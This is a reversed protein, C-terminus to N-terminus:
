RLIIQMKISLMKSGVKKMPKLAFGTDFLKYMVNGNKCTIPSLMQAILEDAFIDRIKVDKLKNTIDVIEAPIDKEIVLAKNDLDQLISKVESQREEATKTSM